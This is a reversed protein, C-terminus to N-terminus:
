LNLSDEARFTLGAQINELFNPVISTLEIADMCIQDFEYCFDEM